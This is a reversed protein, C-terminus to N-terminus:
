PRKLESKGKIRLKTEESLKRIEGNPKLKYHPVLLRVEYKHKLKKHPEVNIYNQKWLRIFASPNLHKLSGHLRVNNYIHYFHNLHLTLDNLTRYEKMALSRGLIAHFSEVHGNEQPTYPHTFVQNIQNNAFYKQVDKAAFRTDNDNRLELTLQKELLGEPQLHKVIIQEWISKIQARKISYAVTWDLVKRSFCDIVTLIFAYRQHEAVFQFKIDMELVELPRCPNVRRYKVYSRAVRKNKDGLLLYKHMLRYVKKHNIIFGEHQLAITMARYGYSTEPLILTDIIRQVVLDEKIEELDGHENIKPTTISPKRGSKKRKGLKKYYSYSTLKCLRLALEIKM